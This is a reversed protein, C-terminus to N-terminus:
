QVRRLALPRHRGANRLDRRRRRRAGDFPPAHVLRALSALHHHIHRHARRRCLRRHHSEEQQQQTRFSGRRGLIRRGRANSGRGGRGSRPSGRRPGTGNRSCARKSASRRFNRGSAHKRRRGHDRRQTGCLHKAERPASRAGSLVDARSIRSPRPCTIKHGGGKMKNSNYWMDSRNAVREGWIFPCGPSNKEHVKHVNQEGRFATQVFFRCKATSRAHM